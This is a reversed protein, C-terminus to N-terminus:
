EKYSRKESAETKEDIFCSTQAKSARESKFTHEWTIVLTLLPRM